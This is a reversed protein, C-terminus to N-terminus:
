FSITHCRKQYKEYVWVRVVCFFFKRNRSLKAISVEGLKEETTLADTEILSGGSLDPVIDAVKVPINNPYIYAKGEIQAQICDEFPM